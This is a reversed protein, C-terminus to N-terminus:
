EIRAVVVLFFLTFADARKRSVFRTQFLEDIGCFLLATNRDEDCRHMSARKVRFALDRVRVAIVRLGYTLRSLLLRQREDIQCSM